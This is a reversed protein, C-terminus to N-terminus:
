PSIEMDQLVFMVNLPLLLEQDLQLLRQLVIRVLRAPDEQPILEKPVLNAIAPNFEMDQLVFRVNLLQLQDQQHLQDEQLVLAVFLEPHEMLTLDLPVFLVLMIPLYHIRDMDLKVILVHVQQWQDQRLLIEMIRVLQVLEEVEEQVGLEKRVNRVLTLLIARIRDLDLKVLLVLLSQLVERERQRQARRVIIVVQVTEERETAERRARNVFRTPSFERERPAFWACIRQLQDQIKLQLAMCVVQALRQGNDERRIAEKRASQASETSGIEMVPFAILVDEMPTELVLM